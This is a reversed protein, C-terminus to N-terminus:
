GAESLISCRKETFVGTANSYLYLMWHRSPYQAVATTARAGTPQEAVGRVALVAGVEQMKATLAEGPLM